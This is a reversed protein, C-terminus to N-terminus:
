ITVLRALMGVVGFSKYYLWCLSLILGFICKRLILVVGNICAVPTSNKIIIKNKQFM